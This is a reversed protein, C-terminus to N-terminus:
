ILKKRNFYNYFFIGVDRRERLLKEIELGDIVEFGKALAEAIYSPIGSVTGLFTVVIM